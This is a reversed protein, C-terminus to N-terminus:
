WHIGGKCVIMGLLVPVSFHIKWEKRKKRDDFDQEYFNWERSKFVDFVYSLLYNIRQFFNKEMVMKLLSLVAGVLFSIGLCVITEKLTLFCGAVSLLKIDGAGLGGIVFLPYLLAFPVTMSLLARVLGETGDKWVAYCLGAAAACLIWENYIKDFLLDTVAAVTLVLFLIIICM